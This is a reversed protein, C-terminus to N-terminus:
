DLEPDVTFEFDYSPFRIMLAEKLEKTVKAYNHICFDVVVDFHVLQKDYHVHFAHISLVHPNTEKLTKLVERKMEQVNLLFDNVAFMGFTIRIGLEKYIDKSAATMADFVEEANATSPVEVNCSGITNEPGYSHLMIDYGGKLPGHGEIISRIKAVTEKDPREGMIASNTDLISSLGAYFIFLSVLIGAIGDLPLKTYPNVIVALLTLSSTLVDSLADKGSAKLADSDVRKGNRTNIIFLFVKGLITFLLLIILLPSMSVESPNKIRDISSMFCQFAAILVLISILLASLYEFRGFGLPHKRTPRRKSLAYGTMTVLSSLTDSANNIADNIVAISGSLSGAIAKVSAFIINAIIGLLATRNITKQREAKSVMIANIYTPM